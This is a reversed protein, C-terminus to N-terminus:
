ASCMSRFFCCILSGFPKKRGHCEKERCSYLGDRNIGKQSLFYSYHRLTLPRTPKGPRHDAVHGRGKEGIHQTQVGGKRWHYRRSQCTKESASSLKRGDDRHLPLSSNASGICSLGVTLQTASHKQGSRRHGTAPLSSRSESTGIVFSRTSTRHEVPPSLSLGLTTWSLCMWGCSTLTCRISHGMPVVPM